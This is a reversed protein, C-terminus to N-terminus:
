SKMWRVRGVIDFWESAGWTMGSGCGLWRRCLAVCIRMERTREWDWQSNGQILGCWRTGYNWPILLRWAMTM